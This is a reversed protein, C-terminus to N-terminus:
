GTLMTCLQEVTYFHVEGTQRVRVELKKEELSKASVIVTYPSGILDADEFKCGVGVFRDDYLVEIGAQLMTTYVEETFACIDEKHLGIAVVTVQFPAVSAPWCMGDDSGFCEIFAGVLRSVGIGYSGMEFPTRKNDQTQVYANQVSAYKDGFYFIHGVEIARKQVGDQACMDDAGGANELISTVSHQDYNRVMDICKESVTVASEGSPCLVAFEHSLGGGIAGSDARLPVSTLGLRKFTKFYALAMKRYRKLASERDIDFSYADKMFFERARMVGHRPRIEDRFKWQIQYFCQPLDRYSAMYRAFVDVVVEEATPCFVLTNDSRDQMTLLEKGYAKDRGSKEWLSFPQALPLLVEQCGAADQEQRVIAAIKQLVRHGLPLWTYIGAVVQAIMGSRIMMKHSLLEVGQPTEKSTPILFHSRRM